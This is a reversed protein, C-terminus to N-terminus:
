LTSVAPRGVPKRRKERRRESGNKQQPNEKASNVTISRVRRNEGAKRQAEKQFDIRLHGSM